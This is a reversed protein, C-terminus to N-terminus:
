KYTAPTMSIVESNMENDTYFLMLMGRACLDILLKEPDDEWAKDKECVRISTWLQAEFVKSKVSGPVLPYNEYYILMAKYMYTVPHGPYKANITKFINEADSFQFDYIHGIGKKIINMASTDQFIQAGSALPLMSLVVMVIRGLIKKLSYVPIQMLFSDSEMLRQRIM